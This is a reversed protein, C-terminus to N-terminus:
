LTSSFDHAVGTVVRAHPSRTGVRADGDAREGCGITTMVGSVPLPECSFSCVMTGAAGIEAGTSTSASAAAVKAM